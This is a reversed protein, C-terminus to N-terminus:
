AVCESAIHISHTSQTSVAGMKKEGVRTETFRFCFSHISLFIFFGVFDYGTRLRRFTFSRATDYGHATHTYTSLPLARASADSPVRARSLLIGGRGRYEACDTRGDGLGDSARQRCFLRTRGRQPRRRLRRHTNKHTHTRTHTHWATTLDNYYKKLSKKIHKV